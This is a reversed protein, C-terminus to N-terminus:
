ILSYNSLKSDNKKTPSDNKSDDTLNQSVNGKKTSLQKKNSITNNSYKLKKIKNKMEDTSNNGENVLCYSKIKSKLTELQDKQSIDILDYIEHLLKMEETDIELLLGEIYLDNMEEKRLVSLLDYM